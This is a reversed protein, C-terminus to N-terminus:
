TQPFRKVVKSALDYLENEAVNAHSAMLIMRAMNERIESSNGVDQDACLRDFVRKLM